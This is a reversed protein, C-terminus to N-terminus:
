QKEVFFGFGKYKVMIGDKDVSLLKIGDIEDGVSLVNDNVVAQPRDTNWILGTINLQPLAPKIGEIVKEKVTPLMGTLYASLRDKLPDSFEEAKYEVQKLKSKLEELIKTEIKIHEKQKQEVASLTAPATPQQLKIKGVVKIILGLVFIPLLILLVIKEKEAKEM